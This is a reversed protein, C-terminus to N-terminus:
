VSLDHCQKSRISDYESTIVISDRLIMGRNLYSRSLNRSRLDQCNQSYRGLNTFNLLDEKLYTFPYSNDCIENPLAACDDVELAYRTFITVIEGCGLFRCRKDKENMIENRIRFAKQTIGDGRAFNRMKQFLSERFHVIPIVPFQASVWPSETMIITGHNGLIPKEGEVSIHVATFRCCVRLSAYEQFPLLDV